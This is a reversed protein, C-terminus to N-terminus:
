LNRLYDVWYIGAIRIYGFSFSFSEEIYYDRDMMLRRILNLDKKLIVNVLLLLFKWNSKLSIERKTYRIKSSLM